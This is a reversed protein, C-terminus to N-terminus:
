EKKIVLYYEVTYKYWIKKIWEETLPCKPEKWTKAIIFLAAIFMTTCTDKQFISKEPYVSLLLVAPDDIKLKKLLRWATEWLPEVVM